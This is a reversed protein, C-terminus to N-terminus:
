TQVPVFDVRKCEPEEPEEEKRLAAPLHPRIEWTDDLEIPDRRKREPEEPQVFYHKTM